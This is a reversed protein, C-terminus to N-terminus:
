PALDMLFVHCSLPPRAWTISHRSLLCSAKLEFGLVAKFFFFVYCIYVYMYGLFRTGSISRFPSLCKILLINHLLIERRTVSFSVSSWPLLIFFCPFILLHIWRYHLGCFIWCCCFQCKEWTNRSYREPFVKPKAIFYTDIFKTLISIM